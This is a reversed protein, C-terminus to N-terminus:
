PPCRATSCHARSCWQGQSSSVQVNASPAPMHLHQLPQPRVIARPVLMDTCVSSLTTVQLHQLPRTLVFARPILLCTLVGSLIPFQLHQSPCYLLPTWAALSKRVM